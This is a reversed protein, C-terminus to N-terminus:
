NLSNYVEKAITGIAYREQTTNFVENTLFVLIINTKGSFIIGVDNEVDSLEGTKNAITVGPLQSPIKTRVQQQLMLNKITVYVSDGSNKVKNLLTAVDDASTYNERGEQQAMTDLMKRQLFTNSYGTSSIFNQINDMGVFDIITNTAYNDSVTIMNTVLSKLSSGQISQNESLQGNQIQTLVYEAIFLKIISASVMKESANFQANFGNDAIVNYSYKQAGSSLQDFAISNLQENDESTSLTEEREPKKSDNASSATRKSNASKISQSNKSTRNTQSDSKVNTNLFRTSVFYTILTAVVLLLIVYPKKYKFM